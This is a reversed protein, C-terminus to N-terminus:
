GAPQLSYGPEPIQWTEVARQPFSPDVQTRLWCEIMFVRWVTTAWPVRTGSAQTRLLTDRLKDRQVFTQVEAQPDELVRTVTPWDHRTLSDLVLQNFYSKERRLRVVDPTVGAMAERLLPRDFREDFALEPPLRLVLDILDADDHFPHAGDIGGMASMHRLFDHAGGRERYGTLLDALYARWRPGPTRKWRWPDGAIAYARAARVGLWDPSYHDPRLRRLLGHASAPVLTKLGFARFAARAAADQGPEDGVLARALRRADRVRGTRIRDALLYRSLGFLEDGGQGDLMVTNGERAALELLPLKFFLNPSAPPLAWTDLYRLSSPITSGGHTVIRGSRIGLESTVADILVAEDVTEHAPFVASYARVFGGGRLLGAAGAVTGSDLGGGLMVAPAEPEPIRREVAAIVGERLAAAAEAAQVRQSRAGPRWYRRETFGQDDLAFLHGGELRRVGAFLTSGPPLLGEVMWQVAAEADPAPARPLVGLLTEVETAVTLAPGDRFVFVGAAGLRDVALVGHRRENDWALLAFTGQLREVLERGWRRYGAALLLPSSVDRGLGLRDALADRDHLRGSLVATVGDLV